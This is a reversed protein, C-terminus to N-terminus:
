MKYSNETKLFEIYEGFANYFNSEKIRLNDYKLEQETTMIGNKKYHYLEQMEEIIKKYKKFQPL